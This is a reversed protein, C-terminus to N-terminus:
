DKADRAIKKFKRIVMDRKLRSLFDIILQGDLHDIEHQLATALLGTAAIEQEKGRRDLYRVTVADPREIEVRVDPISLCGEEYIRTTPALAVIEPNVLALPKKPEGEDATDLVIIRLPVGVQIAALGVGPAAYMTELMDDMLKVASADIKEVPDSIKRLMPDPITIIPLISM